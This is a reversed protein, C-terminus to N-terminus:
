VVFQKIPKIVPENEYQQAEGLAFFGNKDYFAVREGPAFHTGIKKQYIRQGSHCLSAFFDNLEVKPLDSFLAQIPLLIKRLEEESKEKLEEITYSNELTFKGSRLRRLSSMCGGCGLKKGIDECLTRVYTGKTCSLEIQYDSNTLYETKISFIEIDREQREVTIGKRALNVLKKGDVKLASYMPPTQKGKGVFSAIAKEVTERNPINDNEATIKGGIDATDTTIGLKLGAKYEKNDATVYECAKAARGILIVLVGTADPDLTGTHGVKKTNYLKRVINVADHSTMDTPKDVTLVGCPENM